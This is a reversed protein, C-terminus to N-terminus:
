NSVMNTMMSESTVLFIDAISEANEATALALKSAYNEADCYVVNLTTGYNDLTYTKIREAVTVKANDLTENETIIYLNLTLAPKVEPKEYQDIYSGIEDDACGVLMFASMIICLIISIIKKM